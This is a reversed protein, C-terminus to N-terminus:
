LNNYLCNQPLFQYIEMKLLSSLINQPERLALVLSASRSSNLHNTFGSPALPPIFMQWPHISVASNPCSYKLQHKLFFLSISFYFTCCDSHIHNRSSAFIAPALKNPAQMLVQLQHTLPFIEDFTTINFLFIFIYMHVIYIAHMYVCICLAHM